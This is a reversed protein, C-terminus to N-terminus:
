FDKGCSKDFSIKIFLLKCWVIEQTQGKFKYESYFCYVIRKVLLKSLKKPPPCGYCDFNIENIDVVWHTGKSPHLNVRGSDSSFLGDKLYIGVDSFSLSSLLQYIKITSKAKNKLKYENIFDNFSTM